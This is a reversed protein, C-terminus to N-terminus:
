ACLKDDTEQGSWTEPRAAADPFQASRRASEAHGNDVGFACAFSRVIM